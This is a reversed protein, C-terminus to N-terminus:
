RHVQTARTGCSHLGLVEGGGVGRTRDFPDQQSTTQLVIIARGSHESTGLRPRVGLGGRCENFVKGLPQEHRTVADDMDDAVCFRRSVAVVGPQGRDPVTLSRSPSPLEPACAVGAFAHLEGVRRGLPGALSRDIQTGGEGFRATSEVGRGNQSRHSHVAAETVRLHKDVPFFELWSRGPAQQQMLRGVTPRQRAPHGLRGILKKKQVGHRCRARSQRCGQGQTDSRNGGSETGPRPLALSRIHRPAEASCHADDPSNQQQRPRQGSLM